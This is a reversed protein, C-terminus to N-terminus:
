SRELVKSAPAAGQWTGKSNEDNFGAVTAPSHSCIRRGAPELQFRERRPNLVYPAAEERDLTAALPAPTATHVGERAQGPQKRAGGHGGHHGAHPAPGAAPGERRGPEVSLRIGALPRAPDLQDAVRLLPRPPVQHRSIHIAHTTPLTGRSSDCGPLRSRYIIQGIRVRPSRAAESSGQTFMLTFKLKSSPM